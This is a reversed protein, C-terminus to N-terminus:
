PVATADQLRKLDQDSTSTGVNYGQEVNLTRWHWPESHGDAFSMTAGRSHRITPSNQWVATLRVAFYGDDVTNLSEDVFVFAAAPSPKLIQSARKFM